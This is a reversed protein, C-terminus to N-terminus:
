GKKVQVKKTAALHENRYEIAAIVNDALAHFYSGTVTSSDLAAPTGNDGSECVSQVLPIQGLLNLGNAEAQKKCGEKGFIFYKNNPLEAPTFWAMNEVLGLVPVNVKDNTFMNLGKMADALAVQQPTSVIIAGTIALMQIIALHIDGTGPPMDILLYDLEGWATQMIMQKLASTAMPGRWILADAASVFFGISQMKIGYKEIPVIMQEDDMVPRVNHLNFMIPVSPGYIDADVLGVRAGKQALAVALNAAVTSKGVGGKGSAVAIINHVNRVGNPEDDETEPKAQVSINGRVDIGSFTQELANVCNQKLVAINTSEKKGVVLAFSVKNGEIVLNQVMGLAIIDKKLEPHIVTRLVAFVNAASLEM